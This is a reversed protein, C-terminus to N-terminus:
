IYKLDCKINNNKQQISETPYFGGGRQAVQIRLPGREEELVKNCM